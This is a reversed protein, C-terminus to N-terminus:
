VDDYYAWRPLSITQIEETYSPWVGSKVCDLYSRAADLYCKRGYAIADADLMYTATLYPAKNEVVVFIFNEYVFEQCSNLADLAMAAQIHLGYNFIAKSFIAPKASAATKIDLIFNSNFYDPRSKFTVDVGDMRYFFSHEVNGEYKELVKSLIKNKKLSYVMHTSKKLMEEDILTRTGVENIAKAYISKGEKTRRDCQPLIMYRNKYQDSELLLTHVLSGLRMQETSEKKEREKNLYNYQYLKPCEIIDMIASRSLGDARHYDENSMTTSISTEIKNNM